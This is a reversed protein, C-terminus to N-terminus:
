QSDALHSLHSVMTPKKQWHSGDWYLVGNKLNELYHDNFSSSIIGKKRLFEHIRPSDSGYKVDKVSMDKKSFIYDFNFSGYIGDELSVNVHFESSDDYTIFRAMAKRQISREIDTEPFQVYYLEASSSPLGFGRTASSEFDGTIKEPDLISLFPFDGNHVDDVDNKGLILVQSIGDNHLNIKLPIFQGFHWYKGIVNLNRNLRSLFCPSRGAESKIVVNFLGVSSTYTIFNGSYFKRDYRSKRFVVEKDSPLYSNKLEGKYDFVDLKWGMRKLKGLNLITLVENVGDNDIDVIETFRIGTMKETSLNSQLENGPLSWLLKNHRNYIEFQDDPSYRYYSPNVDVPKYLSFIQIGLLVFFGITSISMVSTIIPHRRTFAVVRRAPSRDIEYHARIEQLPSPQLPVIHNKKEPLGFGLLPGPETEVNKFFGSYMDEMRAYLERCGACDTLHKEIEEKQLLAKEDQLVYLELLNPDLHQM